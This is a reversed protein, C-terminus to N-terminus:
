GGNFRDSLIVVDVHQVNEVVVPEYRLRESLSCDCLPDDWGGEHGCGVFIYDIRTSYNDCTCFCACNQQVNAGSHTCQCTCKCDTSVWGCNCTCGTCNCSDNILEEDDNDLTPNNMNINDISPNQEM